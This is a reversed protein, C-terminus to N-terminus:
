TILFHAETHALCVPGCYVIYVVYHVTTKAMHNAGSILASALSILLLARSQWMGVVVVVSKSADFM